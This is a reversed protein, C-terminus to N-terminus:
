VAEKKLRNIIYAQGKPLVKTTFKLLIGESTHIPREIIEFYGNDIYKQYPENNSNLLGWKRLQRFLNNQGITRGNKSCLKALARILISDTSSQITEAFLVKPKDQEIKEALEAAYRLAEPLTKPITFM